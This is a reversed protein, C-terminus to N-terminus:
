VGIMRKFWSKQEGAGAKEAEASGGKGSETGGAEATEKEGSGEAKGAEAEAEEESPGEVHSKFRDFFQDAMRKAFGDILRSGLQALKGGVKAQVDYSLKTGEDVDELKVDASGKAFGAAGGKGEGSITYSEGEVINSLEVEGKFTANVPGVKQKVTAAFGTEGTKEMSQCGPICAKLVEPDNLAAWVTARDAEIVREGSMEM